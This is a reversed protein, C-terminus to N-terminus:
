PRRGNTNEQKTVEARRSMGPPSIERDSVQRIAGRRTKKTKSRGPLAAIYAGADPLLTMGEVAMQKKFRFNRIEIRPAPL